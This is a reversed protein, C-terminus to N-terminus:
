LHSDGLGTGPPIGGLHAPRGAGLHAKGRGPPAAGPRLDVQGPHQGLHRPSHARYAGDPGPLCLQEASHGGTGGPEVAAGAPVPGGLAPQVPESGAHPRFFRRWPHNVTPLVDQELSLRFAEGGPSALRRLYDGADLTAFEAGERRMARCIEEARALGARQEELERERGALADSLSLEGQQARRITELPLGLQRLLKVKELTAADEQTYWRYNNEGRVPTIFGEREYFRINARTMGLREEMEKITM